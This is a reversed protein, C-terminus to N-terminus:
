PQVVVLIQFWNTAKQLIHTKKAVVFHFHQVIKLSQQVARVVFAEDISPQSNPDNKNLKWLICKTGKSSIFSFM